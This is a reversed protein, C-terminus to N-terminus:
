EVAWVRIITRRRPAIIRLGVPEGRWAFLGHHLFVGGVPGATHTDILGVDGPQPDSYREVLGFSSLVDQWLTDLSGAKAILAQAERRSSWHPRRVTKGTAVEVWKAAWSTCDSEGWVAPQECADQLYARLHEEVTM